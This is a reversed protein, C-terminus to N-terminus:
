FKEPKLLAVFLYVMLGVAVIGVLLDEMARHGRKGPRYHQTHSWLSTDLGPVEYRRLSPAPSEDPNRGEGSRREGFITVRNHLVTALASDQM